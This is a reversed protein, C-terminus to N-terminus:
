IDDLEQKMLDMLQQRKKQVMKGLENAKEQYPKAGEINRFQEPDSLNKLSYNSADFSEGLLKDMEDLLANMKPSSILRLTNTETSMRLYEEKMKSEIKLFGNMLEAIAKNGSDKDDETEVTSYDDFFRKIIPQIDNDFSENSKRNFEDLLKFYRTFQKLKEEYKYKRKEIELTHLKKQEELRIEYQSKVKQKEDTLRAIDEMLARNEGKKKSYAILYGSLCGICFCVIGIIIDM